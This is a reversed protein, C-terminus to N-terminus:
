YEEPLLVTTSSRDAETIMYVKTKDIHYVSMVRTGNAIAAENTQKDEECVDGFDGTVHRALLDVLIGTQENLISLVGPTCVFTGFPFQPLKHM